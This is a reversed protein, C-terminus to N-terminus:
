FYLHWFKEDEDSSNIKRLQDVINVTELMLCRALITMAGLLDSQYQRCM